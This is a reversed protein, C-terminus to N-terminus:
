IENDNYGVRYTILNCKDNTCYYKNPNTNDQAQYYGCRNCKNM